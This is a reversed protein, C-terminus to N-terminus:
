KHKSVGRWMSCLTVLFVGLAAALLLLPVAIGIVSVARDYVCPSMAGASEEYKQLTWQLLYECLSVIPSPNNM